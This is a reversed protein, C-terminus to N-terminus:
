RGLTLEDKNGLIGQPRSVMLVMLIVGILMIRLAGIQDAELGSLLPVQGLDRTIASYAWFIAAGLLIGPNSGAGGLVVITWTTFTINTQYQTPYINSLQWAQFVAGIGAIFGGIMLSQLKYFFINKGLARPIEEDERIAKLVRGWPSHVLKELAVYVIALTIVSVFLLGNQASNARFNLLSGACAGYLIFGVIALVAAWFGTFAMALGKASQLKKWFYRGVKWAGFGVIATFVAVMGYRTFLTPRFTELPLKFGQIGFTGKTLWEENVAVLRIIESFGITVIALYDERLRLTSIGMILGLLAALLGGALVALFIPVGALNLLIATYAGIAMFGAHGFNLLGTFGWHLNLGLSFIAYISAITVLFVLYDPSFM